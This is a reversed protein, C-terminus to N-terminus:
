INVPKIIEPSVLQARRMLSVPYDPDFLLRDISFDREISKLRRAAQAAAQASGTAAHLALLYRLPPRFSPALTSASTGYHIAEATRGTVAATLSRQFDAWFKLSSRESLNQATVAAAHAMELEGRYLTVNAWSWWALPNARNAAVAHQSLLTSADIDRELFIKANAVAALVHSNTPEFELARASHEACEAALSATDETQREVFRIVALQSLWAYYLGRPDREIAQALLVRAAELENHRMSFMKRFGTVALMQAERDAFSRGARDRTLTLTRALAQVLRHALALCAINESTLSLPLSLSAHEVWHSRLTGAEELTVRLGLVGAGCVFAKATVLLTGPAPIVEPSTNPQITYLNLEFVERISHAATDIFLTELLRADAGGEGSALFAVAVASAAADRTRDEAPRPRGPPHPADTPSPRGPGPAPSAGPTAGTATGAVVGIAVEARASDFYARMERLWAEFESDRVDVGQLFETESDPGAGRDPVHVAGTDLAVSSRDAILVDSHAGLARRAEVLAQRLSGSAQRPGRDSWLKDQLWARSRRQGRGTAVLALLACAKASTPTLDAGDVATVLFPGFLSVTVTKSDAGYLQARAM